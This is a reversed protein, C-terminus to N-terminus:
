KGICFGAFIDNLIDTSTIKGIITDLSDITSRIDAAIFENGFNNELSELGKSLSTIASQIADIQRQNSIKLTESSGTTQKALYNAVFDSVAEIGTNNKASIRMWPQNLKKIAATTKTNAPLDAKNLLLLTNERKNSALKSIIKQDNQNLAASGDFLYLLFDATAVAKLTRDMGIEETKSATERLGATDTIKVLFRGFHMNEEITDRTTGPTNTVIARERKLLANLLSSKGSNPRGVLVINAGRHILQASAFGTALKQLQALVDNLALRIEDRGAITIDEEAFDLDLELLGATKTLRDSLTEIHQKLVGDLFQRANDTAARSEAQIYEAVAEAQTLDMKGNLFARRTFEGPEAIRAGAMTLNEIIADVVLSNGHSSVEIMDEGTYSKPSRYLWLVVDDVINGDPRRFRGYQGSYGDMTALQRPGSFCKQVIPIADAGSIRIISLSGGPATAPAVITDKDQRM